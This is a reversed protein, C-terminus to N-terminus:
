PICWDTGSFNILKLEHKEIARQKASEFDTDVFGFSMLLVTIPAIILMRRIRTKYGLKKM